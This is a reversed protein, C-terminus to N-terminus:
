RGSAVKFATWILSHEEEATPSINQIMEMNTNFGEPLTLFDRFAPSIHPDSASYTSYYGLFEFCEAGRKPDMIYNLFAYAAEPNPAKSPIFGAMIGFGIGEKPFVVKLGPNALMSLTVQSTYMVGASIEGSLLDDQLGDDKILRINPALGLLKEGASRIENLNVTNYSKGLVKLAMGNIVRYNAIIGVSNRLSTDWLDSYGTINLRVRNPDYVITQVGAGYPVTYEDSPDYFQKQYIPNINRYNTLKTKDLKQTLGKEIATEIIYDDAIILDYGGGRSQELKALMTEDYDFNVYNIRYGSAKEFGDLIEQPFMEAWTYLTLRKQKSGGAFVNGSIGCLLMAAILITLICRKRKM